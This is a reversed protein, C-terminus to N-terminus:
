DEKWGLKRCADAVREFFWKVGPQDGVTASRLLSVEMLPLDFPLESHKLGYADASGNLTIEPVSLLLDSQTLIPAAYLSHPVVAGIKRDIGLQTAKKDVPGQGLSTSNGIQLHPFAAWTQMSWDSFAPHDKRGYVVWPWKGLTQGRLGDKQTGGPAIIVDYQGDITKQVAGSSSASLEISVEPAEKGLDRLLQPILPSIFDPATLRFTRTSTAPEFPMPDDLLTSLHQLMVPLTEALELGRSTPIMRKGDRVLLENGFMSRLRNLAHSVASPTLNLRQASRAVGREQLLVELVVLLNLDANALPVNEM